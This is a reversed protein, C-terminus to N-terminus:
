IGPKGAESDGSDVAGVALAASLRRILLLQVAVVITHGVIHFLYPFLHSFRQGSLISTEM